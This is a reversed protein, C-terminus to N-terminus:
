TVTVKWIYFNMGPAFELFFGLLEGYCGTWLTQADTHAKAAIAIEEVTTDTTLQFSPDQRMHSIVDSGSEDMIDKIRIEEYSEHERNLRDLSRINDLMDM